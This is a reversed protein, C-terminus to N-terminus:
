EGAVLPKTQKVVQPYKWISITLAVKKAEAETRYGIHDYFFFEHGERMEIVFFYPM